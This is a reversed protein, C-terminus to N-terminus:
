ELLARARAAHAGNPALELLRRAIRKAEVPRNLRRYSEMRLYLAELALTGRPFERQYKTLTSLASRADGASLANRATDLLSVERGLELADAPHRDNQEEPRPDVSARATSSNAAEATHVTEPLAVGAPPAQQASRPTARAPAAPQSSAASVDTTQESPQAAIPKQVDRSPVAEPQGFHEGTARATATSAAVPVEVRPANTEGVAQWAGAALAASTVGVGAWKVTTLTMPVAVAKGVGAGSAGILAGSGTATAAAMKTSAAVASNAAATTTVGSLAAGAAVSGAVGVAALTRELSRQSPHEGRADALMASFLDSDLEDSLRPPNSM